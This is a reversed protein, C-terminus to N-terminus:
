PPWSPPDATPTATVRVNSPRPEEDTTESSLSGQEEDFLRYTELRRSAYGGDCNISLRSRLHPCRHGDGDCLRRTFYSHFQDLDDDTQLHQHHHHCALILLCTAFLVAASSVGFFAAFSIVVDNDDESGGERGRSRDKGSHFRFCGRSGDGGGRGVSSDDHYDCDYDSSGKGATDYDDGVSPSAMALRTLAGEGLTDWQNIVARCCNPSIGFKKDLGTKPDPLHFAFVDLMDRAVIDGAVLEFYVLFGRATRDTRRQQGDSVSANIHTDLPSSLQRFCRWNSLSPSSLYLTHNWSPPAFHVLCPLLFCDGDRRGGASGCLFTLNQMSTRRDLTSDVPRVVIARSLMTSSAMSSPMSQRLQLVCQHVDFTLDAIDFSSSRLLLLACLAPPEDFDVLTPPGKRTLIAGQPCFPRLTVAAVGGFVVLADGTSAVLDSNRCREEIAAGTAAANSHLPMVPVDDPVIKLTLLSLHSRKKLVIQLVVALTNLHGVCSVKRLHGSDDNRKSDRSSMQSLGSKQDYHRRCFYRLSDGSRICAVGSVIVTLSVVLLVGHVIKDHFM